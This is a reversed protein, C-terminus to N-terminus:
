KISCLTTYNKRVYEEDAPFLAPNYVRIQSILYNGIVGFSLILTMKNPQVLSIYMFKSVRTVQEPLAIMRVNNLSAANAKLVAIYREQKVSKSKATDNIVCFALKGGSRTFYLHFHGEAGATYVNYNGKEFDRHLRRFGQAYARQPTLSWPITLKKGDFDTFEARDPLSLRGPSTEQRRRLSSDDSAAKAARRNECVKNSDATFGEGNLGCAFCFLVSLSPLITKKCINKM